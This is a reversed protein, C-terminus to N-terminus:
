GHWLDMTPEFWSTLYFNAFINCYISLNYQQNRVAAVPGTPGPRVEMVQAVYVVPALCFEVELTAGVAGDGVRSNRQKVSCAM